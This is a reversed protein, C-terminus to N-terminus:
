CTEAEALRILLETMSVVDILNHRLVGNLRRADKTHVFEHYICPVEWSPVDGPRSRGLIHWELTVLKCNPLRHKWMRRAHHLLDFQEPVAKLEVKNYKARERIYPMDFSKGNFTVCFAFGSLLDDVMSILAGEESYDRALLQAATLRGEREYLTGALFLPTSSFGTTELDLFVFSPVRRGAGLLKCAAARLDDYRVYECAPREIILCHGGPGAVERVGEVDEIAVPEVRSRVRGPTDAKELLVLKLSEIRQRIGDEVAGL